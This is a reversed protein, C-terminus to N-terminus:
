KLVMQGSEVEDPKPLSTYGQASLEDLALIKGELVFQNRGNSEVGKGM